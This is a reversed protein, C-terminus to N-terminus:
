LQIQLSVITSDDVNVSVDLHDVVNTKDVALSATAQPKGNFAIGNLTKM